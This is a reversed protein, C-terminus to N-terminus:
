KKRFVLVIICIATFVSLLYGIWSLLPMDLFMPRVNTNALMSAGIGFTLTLLALVIKNISDKILKEINDLENIKFNLALKDNNVKEILKLTDQPLDNVLDQIDKLNDFFKKSLYNPHFKQRALKIAYPRMSRQINLDAHLQQGIGEILAIGRLLIYVYEPLLVHNRQLIHNFKKIMIQVEITDVTNYELYDFIDAIDRELQKDNEIYHKIAMKKLSRVIRKPNKLGFDIVVNELTEKENIALVGMSGFDIFVIRGDKLIFINGPHPDAHFFGDDLLQKLYIDFGKQVIRKPDLELAELQEVDNVKFGEIFEMCLFNNNSYDEYTKPVYVDKSNEFNKRFREINQFENTLSLEKLISNEFSKEIESIFLKQLKEYKKELFQVIDRILALDSEIIKQINHRKVKFVVKEGNLLTARYVQSISAAAFPQEDIYLFHEDPDIGFEDKIKQKIDINEPPVDDQLKKLEEILSEPVLDKRNSLLQGFKIYTPGLEELAMRFRQNFSSNFFDTNQESHLLDNGRSLIEEFGYKSVVKVIKSFRKIKKLSDM